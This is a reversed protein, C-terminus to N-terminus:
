QCVVGVTFLWYGVVSLCGFDVVVLLLLVLCNNALNSLRCVIGVMLCCGAVAVGLM